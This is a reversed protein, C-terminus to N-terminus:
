QHGGIATYSSYFLTPCINTAKTESNKGRKRPVVIKAKTKDEFFM